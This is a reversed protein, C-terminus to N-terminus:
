MKTPTPIGLITLGNKMVTAFAKTLAIRYPTDDGADLIKNNAYYSNFAGALEILYTTINQPALEKMAQESIEPLRYVIQELYEQEKSSGTPFDFKVEGDLKELISNARVYSYQLYPGSDGEFSLAQEMDFIIDKGPSQKLIAYKIAGVAVKESVEKATADDFNRDKIKERVREIAENILSDATIVDGTRSSMKGTPLKLMGHPVHTIKSALDPYMLSLAKVIVKFYASIENGTVTIATDYKYTDYKLKALGLEKAEYTPLGEKNIFVRTHEGHKEGPFIIAGESLEFIGKELGETVIGQGIPATVSEFFYRDFKTGLKKYIEEFYELSWEKGKEYLENVEDDSHEYIKKNISRILADLTEDEKAAKSGAAYAHGLYAIKDELSVTDEPFGEKLLRMGYICLAVHRGVDGQYCVRTTEAGHWEVIRSLAEGIANDMLHGIHFQKFPNPNTYEVVYKKGKLFDTWGYMEHDTIIKVVKYLFEKKLHFNIFGPGAVEIREVEKPLDEAIKEKLKKALDLASSAVQTWTIEDSHADVTSAFYRYAVLAVNSSYDGHSVDIPHELKIEIKADPVLGKLAKEIHQILIDRIM